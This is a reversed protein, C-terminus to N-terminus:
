GEKDASFSRALSRAADSLGAAESLSAEVVGRLVDTDHDREAAHFDTSENNFPLPPAASARHGDILGAPRPM